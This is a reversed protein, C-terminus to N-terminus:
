YLAPELGPRGPAVMLNAGGDLQRGGKTSAITVGAIFLLVLVAFVGHSVSAGLWSRPAAPAPDSSKLQINKMVTEM